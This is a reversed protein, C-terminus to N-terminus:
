SEKVFKGDKTFIQLRDNARDCVYVLGDNSLDACHM